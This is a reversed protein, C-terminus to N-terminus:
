QLEFIAISLGCTLFSIPVAIWHVLLAMQWINRGPQCPKLNYFPSCFFLGTRLLIYWFKQVIRLSTRATKCFWNTKLPFLFFTSFVVHRNKPRCRTSQFEYKNIKESMSLVDASKRVAFSTSLLPKLNTPLGGFLSDILKRQESSFQGVSTLLENPM